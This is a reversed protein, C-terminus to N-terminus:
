DGWSMLAVDPAPWGISGSLYCFFTGSLVSVATVPSGARDGCVHVLQITVSLHRLSFPTSHCAVELLSNIMDGEPNSRQKQAYLGIHRSLFLVVSGGQKGGGLSGESRRTAATTGSHPTQVSLVFLSPDRLPEMTKQNFVLQQGFYCFLALWFTVPSHRLHVESREVLTILLRSLEPEVPQFQNKFCSSPNWDLGFLKELVPLFNINAQGCKDLLDSAQHNNQNVPFM